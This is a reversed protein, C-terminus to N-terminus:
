IKRRVEKFSILNNLNKIYLICCIISIGIHIYVPVQNLFQMYMSPNTYNLIINILLWSVVTGYKAIKLKLKMMSYLFITSFIFLSTISIILVRIADIHSYLFYFITISITNIIISIISFAFMRLASLQCLNYKCTMELQFVGNQKSNLYSFITTALYFIPSIIFTVKYLSDIDRNISICMSFFYFIIVILGIFILEKVDHFINKIGLYKYSKYLYSLFSSKSKIGCSVISELEYPELMPVNINTKDIDM